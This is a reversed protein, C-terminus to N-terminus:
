QNPEALTTCRCAAVQEVSAQPDGPWRLNFGFSDGIRVTKGNLEQHSHRVREDQATLWTHREIGLDRWQLSSSANAIANAETTAILQARADLNDIMVEIQDELEGLTERIADELRIASDPASALVKIITRRVQVALTSMSGESLNVLHDRLYELAQPNTSSMLVGDSAIKTLAQQASADWLAALPKEAAKLLEERWATENLALLAEVDQETLILKQFEPETNSEVRGLMRIKQRTALMYDRMVRKFRRAIKPEHEKLLAEHAAIAADFEDQRDAPADAKEVVSEHIAAEKQVPIETEKPEPSSVPKQGGARAAAIQADYQAKEEPLPQMSAPVFMRQGDQTPPIQWGALRAADDFSRGCQNFLKQTRDIKSDITERLSAVNSTDFAAYVGSGPAEFKPLVHTCFEDAQFELYPCVTVEWFVRFAERASAYNLGETLGLIPRTVGFVSMITERNWARLEKFEMDVPSFGHQTYEMGFPLVAVKRHEETRGQGEQWASRLVGLQTETLPQKASLVGGPSGGNKLLADDFRDVTFDKSATRFAAQMPGIGRLPNYPDVEAFQAVSHVPYDIGQSGLMLRWAVPLKTNEDIVAEVLDGRVPWIEDPMEGSNIPRAYVRMGAKTKEEVRKLFFWFTEGFLCHYIAQTRWLKKSSLIPNPYELLDLLKHKQVVKDQEMDNRDRTYLRLPVTSAARAIAMVCAYVFPNQLFPKTLTAEGALRLMARYSPGASTSGLDFAKVDWGGSADGGFPDKFALDTRKAEYAPSGSMSGSTLM